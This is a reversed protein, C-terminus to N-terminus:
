NVFVFENLNFLLRCVNVMGHKRAHESLIELERERPARGLALEFARRVQEEVGGAGAVRKALHESMRTMFPDNLLVLAQQPTISTARVPTFQSSDPCDLADLFPDPITRFIFRYISRRHAGPADPDFKDYEVKPTRHIGPSQKFHRVSPGAMTYDIKGSALLVADRVSEADLKTRNMRWLYANDADIKAFAPEHRCSQRYTASTVILRHLKKLSGGNELLYSALWDLLEPHTPKSGMRGFDSPTSVIGRGFHHHWVRNAISRWTLVNRPSSIWEALAVRRQAEDDAKALKFTPELTSVCSLAAPVAKEAPKRIDGRKLVYVPRCGKAPRFSGDATFDPSAAYVLKPPPLKALSEDIKLKVVFGTLELQESESREAAPKAVIREINGPVPSLAAAAADGASLRVRGILHHRGHQQHLTVILRTGKAVPEALLFVAQHPQGVAPFIGWATAPNGDIAKDIEWGAQNFDASARAIKLAEKEEGNVAEINVESLHLNGNDQRGPGRQPLSDDTLAELRIARASPLESVAEFCYVDKEAPKGSFLVSLDPLKTSPTGANSVHVLPDLVSWPAKRERQESEWALVEKVVAADKVLPAIAKPGAALAKKRELLLRRQSAIKPDEDYVRNARDVGAFVAQLAYYEETPIPDFKHDHCRACQVTASLFTQGVTTVMDDRDLYHGMTRDVTDERIDRLSSEDWPGAALFGLAVTAWPDDPFLVDGAIQEQVFRGYPKDSNFAQILYDRYPWANDRPVDQDHGHTEAFHVVDMWHRTWREGYRPSALLREVAKEYADPAKDSLFDAMEEPTPPLGTLNFAVRRLLTRPEAAPAPELGKEKLTALVFRDIPNVPWSKFKDWAVEPPVPKTLPRLSWWVGDDAPASKDEPGAAAGSWAISFLIFLWVGHKM